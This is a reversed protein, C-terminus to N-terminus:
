PWPGDQATEDSRLGSRRCSCPEFVRENSDDPWSSAGVIRSSDTAARAGENRRDGEGALSVVFWVIPSGRKRGVGSDAHGQSVAAGHVATECSNKFIQM